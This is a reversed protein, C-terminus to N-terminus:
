YRGHSPWRSGTSRTYPDRLIVRDGVQVEEGLWAIYKETPNARYWDEHGKFPGPDGSGLLVLSFQLLVEAYSRSQDGAAVM